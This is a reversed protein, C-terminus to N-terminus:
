TKIDIWTSICLNLENRKIARIKNINADKIEVAAYAVYTSMYYINVMLSIM